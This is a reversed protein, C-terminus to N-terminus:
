ERAFDSIGELAAHNLETVIVETVIAQPPGSSVHTLLEEVAARLGGALVEVRGDDLNRAYGRLGLARAKARTYARFYVGQVRGTVHVLCVRLDDQLADDSM